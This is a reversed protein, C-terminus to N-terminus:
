DSAAGMETLLAKAESVRPTTPYREILGFLFVSAAQPYGRDLYWLARRYDSEALDHELGARRERSEQVRSGEPAEREYLRYSELAARAPTPDYDPGEYPAEQCRAIQFLAIERWESGRYQDDERLLKYEEIAELYRGQQFDHNAITFRADDAYEGLPYRELVRRLIAAGLSRDGVEIMGLVQRTEGRVLAQGIRYEREIVTRLRRTAPFEVLLRDFHFHAQYYRGLAYETQGAYFLAEELWKGNPVDTLLQRFVASAEAYREKEYLARGEGMLPEARARGGYGLNVWGGDSTWVWDAQVVGGLLLFVVAMGVSRCIM